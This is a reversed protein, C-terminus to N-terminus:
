KSRRITLWWKWGEALLRQLRQNLMPATKLTQRWGKELLPSLYKIAKGGLRWGMQVSRSAFVKIFTCEVPKDKLTGRRLLWLMLGSVYLAFLGIGALFWIFRGIAGFAQGTHLPWMWTSFTEGSNFELPNQVAKIQGSWHDVWVTTYPHRQNIEKSQRFNIRYAGTSGVPTSIRRLEASPFLSRAVFVAGALTTSHQGPEATSVIDRGTKGHTMGSAGTIAELLQPYSLNFGTFALGWLIVATGIGLNRHLDLLLAKQGMNFRVKFRALLQRWGPWWLYVGTGVSVMLLVGLFGVLRWGADGLQLQTHLDVIWTTLTKGWFRNAVVEATYPNVSVMLPAHFEFFTEQPKDFWATIMGQPSDPMELTWSGHRQPHARKVAALVHDLSQLKAHPEVVQLSPNLWSDLETRYLSISGTLGLLAFFFGALLALFLHM